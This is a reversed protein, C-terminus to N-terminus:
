TGYRLFGVPLGYINTLPATSGFCNRCVPPLVAMENIESPAIEIQGSGIPARKLAAHVLPSVLFQTPISSFSVDGAKAFQLAGERFGAKMLDAGDDSLQEVVTGKEGSIAIVNPPTRSESKGM